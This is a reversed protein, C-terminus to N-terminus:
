DGAKRDFRRQGLEEPIYLMLLIDNDTGQDM